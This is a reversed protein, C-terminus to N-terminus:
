AQVLNRALRVALAAVALRRAHPQCTSTRQPTVAKQVAKGLGAFWADDRAAPGPPAVMLPRSNTGTVAIRMADGVLAVAVGALPFDIAGRLRLKAYASPAPAPLRVATVIEGPALTLHAAGDEVYFDALPLRREGGPGALVIEADHVMLAPAMDGSFAARCRKGKPAVHCIDGQYKLCFDNSKRWWESQNYYHCRTDLCLNGGLTAVVRHSPGAVARAAEVVAPYPVLAPDSALRELTVGAGIALGAGTAEIRALADIGTIDVLVSPAALGRRMQVVKDTGGAVIQAGPWALEGLAEKITAPRALRFDPLVETM